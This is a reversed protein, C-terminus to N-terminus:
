SIIPRRSQHYIRIIQLVGVARQYYIRVPPVPWSKVLEGSLLRQEPGELELSALSEVIEVIRQGLAAAARPNREAIYDLLEELDAEAEPAFLVRV